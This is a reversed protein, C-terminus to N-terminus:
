LLKQDPRGVNQGDHSVAVSVTPDTPSCLGGLEM